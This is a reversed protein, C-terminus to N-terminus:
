KRDNRENRERAVGRCSGSRAASRESALGVLAPLRKSLLGVSIGSAVSDATGDVGLRFYASIPHGRRGGARRCRRFLSEPPGAGAFAGLIGAAGALATQANVGPHPPQRQSGVPIAGRQDNSETPRINPVRHTTPRPTQPDNPEHWYPQSSPAGAHSTPTPCSGTSSANTPEHVSNPSAPRTPYSRPSPTPSPPSTPLIRSCCGSEGDVIQETIGGVGSAVVARRKFMAESVTLGFGEAISKQVVISAHRQLANVIVANEELDAMPVCALAIRSRAHHPLRGGCRGASRCCRHGKRTTPSPPSSPAPWSSSPTTIGWSTSPSARCSAVWTRSATGGRCRCSSPVHPDAAPGTRFIDVGRNIRRMTGDSRRYEAHRRDGAILGVSSSSRGRTTRRCSRTRRRSRTSRRPSRSRDARRPDMVTRLAQPHLRVRRRGAARSAPSPVGLRDGHVRQPHRHRRPM